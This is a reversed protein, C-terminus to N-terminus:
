LTRRAQRENQWGIGSIDYLRHRDDRRRIRCDCVFCYSERNVYQIIWIQRKLIAVKLHTYGV